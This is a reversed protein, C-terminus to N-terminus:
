PARSTLAVSGITAAQVAAAFTSQHKVRVAFTWKRATIGPRPMSRSVYRKYGSGPGSSLVNPQTKPTFGKSMTAYRVLTGSNLRGWTVDTTYVEVSTNGGAYRVRTVFMPHHNKWTATTALMDRKMAEGQLQLTRLLRGRIQKYALYHPPVFELFLAGQAM